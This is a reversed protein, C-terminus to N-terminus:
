KSDYKNQIMRVDTDLLIKVIRTSMKIFWPQIEYISDILEIQFM